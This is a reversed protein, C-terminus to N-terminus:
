AVHRPNNERSGIRITQGRAPGISVIALKAGTLEALKSVYERARSSSRIIPPGQRDAQELRAARCLGAHLPCPFRPRDASLSQKGTLKYATCVRISPVADLGDLNTIAIEDIGNVMAAYRTAVADFWGCRRPRGTTAGFERGM